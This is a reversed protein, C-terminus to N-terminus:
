STNSCLARFLLTPLPLIMQWEPIPSFRNDQENGAWGIGWVTHDGALFFRKLCLPVVFGRHAGLKTFEKWGPSQQQGHQYPFQTQLQSIIHEAHKDSGYKRMGREKPITQEPVV